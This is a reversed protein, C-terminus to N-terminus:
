AAILGIHKRDLKGVEKAKKFLVSNLNEKKGEEMNM